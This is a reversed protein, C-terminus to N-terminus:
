LVRKEFLALGCGRLDIVAREDYGIHRYFATSFPNATYADLRVFPIAHDRALQETGEMLYRGLGQGQLEPFVVLAFVGLGAARPEQWYSRKWFGPPYTSVVVSGVAEGDRTAVYLTSRRLNEPVACKIRERISEIRSSGGWHGPGLKGALDLASEQRMQVIAKAHELRALEFTLNM